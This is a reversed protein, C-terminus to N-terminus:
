IKTNKNPAAWGMDKTCKMDIKEEYVCAYLCAGSKTHQQQVLCCYYMPQRKGFFLHVRQAGAESSRLNGLGNM